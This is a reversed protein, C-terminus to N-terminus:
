LQDILTARKDSSSDNVFSLLRDPAPIRVTLALTVRRIFEWDTTPPAPQVGAAQMDAFLYSDISKADHTQAFDSSRSGGPLYGVQSSVAETLDSLAHVRGGARVRTLLIEQSIARQPGFFTCVPDSVPLAASQGSDEQAWASGSLFVVALIVVSVTVNRSQM